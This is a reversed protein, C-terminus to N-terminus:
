QRLVVTHFIAVVQEVVEAQRGVFAQDIAASHDVPRTIRRIDFGDDPRFHELGKRLQLIHLDVIGPRTVEQQGERAQWLDPAETVVDVVRLAAASVSHGIGMNGALHEGFCQAALSFAEIGKGAQRM